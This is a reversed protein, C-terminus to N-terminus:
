SYDEIQKKVAAPRYWSTKGSGTWLFDEVHIEEGRRDKILDHFLQERSVPGQPEGGEARENRSLAKTDATAVGDGDSLASAELPDLVKASTPFIRWELM